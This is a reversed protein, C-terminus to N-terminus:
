HLWYELPIKINNEKEKERLLEVNPEPMQPCDEL